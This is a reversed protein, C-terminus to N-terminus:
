SANGEEVSKVDEAIAAAMRRQLRMAIESPHSDGKEDVFGHGNAWGIVFANAQSLLHKLQAVREKWAQADQQAQDRELRVKQLEAILEDRDILLDPIDQRAHAIFEADAARDSEVNPDWETLVGFEGVECIGCLPGKSMIVQSQTSFWLGPTAADTRARIEDLRKKDLM